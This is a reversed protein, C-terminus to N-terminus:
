TLPELSPLQALDASLKAFGDRLATGYRSTTREAARATIVAMSADGMASRTTSELLVVRDRIEDLERRLETLESM